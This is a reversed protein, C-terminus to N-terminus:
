ENHCPVDDETETYSKPFPDYAVVFQNGASDRIWKAADSYTKYILPTESYIKQILM